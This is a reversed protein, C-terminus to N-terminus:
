QRETTRELQQTTTIWSDLQQNSIGCSGAEPQVEIEQMADAYKDIAKHKSYQQQGYQHKVRLDWQPQTNNGAPQIPKGPNGAPRPKSGAPPAGPPRAVAMQLSDTEAWVLIQEEKAVIDSVSGSVALRRLSERIEIGSGFTIKTSEAAIYSPLMMEEPIRKLIDDIPMSEEDSTSKETRALVKSLPETDTSDIMKEKEKETEKEKEVLPGEENSLVKLSSDEDYNTISSVDIRSETEVTETGATKLVVPQVTEMEETEVEVTDKIVSANHFFDVLDAEYIASSFGLFGRLGSSELAKFMQVMGDDAMSFVSDFYVQIANNILSAAM